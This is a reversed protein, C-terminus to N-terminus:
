RVKNVLGREWNAQVYITVLRVVNSDSDKLRVNKTQESTEEEDVVTTIRIQDINFLSNMGEEGQLVKKLTFENM